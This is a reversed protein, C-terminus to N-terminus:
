NRYHLNNLMSVSIKEGNKFSSKKVKKSLNKERLGDIYSRKMEYASVTHKLYGGNERVQGGGGGITLNVSFNESPREVSFGRQNKIRLDNIDM